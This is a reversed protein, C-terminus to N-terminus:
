GCTLVEAIKKKRWALADERNAFSKSYTKKYRVFYATWLGSDRQFVGVANNTQTTNFAQKQRTTWTVNEPFYGKDVNKREITTNSEGHEDAHKLYNDYLDDKFNSFNAWRSCVKIGRGGYNSFQDNNHNSCRSKMNTWIGHFRTGRMGHKTARAKSSERSLCGCSRTKGSLLDRSNVIKKIGCECVCNWRTQGSNTNESRYLAVLRGFSRGTLDCPKSM